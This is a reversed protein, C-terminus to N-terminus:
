EASATVSPSPLTPVAPVQASEGGTPNPSQSVATRVQWSSVQTALQDLWHSERDTVTALTLIILLSGAVWFIRLLDRAPTAQIGASMSIKPSALTPTSTHGTQGSTPTRAQNQLAAAVEARIAQKWQHKKAM